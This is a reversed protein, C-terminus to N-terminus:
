KKAYNVGEDTSLTTQNIKSLFKLIAKEENLTVDNLVFDLLNKQIDLTKEYMIKGEDTLKLIYVRKDEESREKIIYGSLILKKMVSAILGRDIELDKVLEYIKKHKQQGIKRLVHIDLLSLEEKGNIKFGKRDYVLVKHMLKDIMRNIEHYYNAM